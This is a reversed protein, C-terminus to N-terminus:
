KKPCVEYSLQKQLEKIHYIAAELMKQLENKLDGM